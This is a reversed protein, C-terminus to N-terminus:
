PDDDSVSIVAVPHCGMPSNTNLSDIVEDYTLQNNSPPIGADCWLAYSCSSAEKNIKFSFYGEFDDGLYDGVYIDDGTSPDVPHAIGDGSGAYIGNANVSLNGHSLANSIAAQAASFASRANANMRAARAQRLYGIMSPVLIAALVGIIAIVVILEILTFGKLKKKM